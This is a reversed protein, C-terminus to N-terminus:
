LVRVRRGRRGVPSSALTAAYDRCYCKLASSTRTTSLPRPISDINTNPPFNPVYNHYNFRHTHTPTHTHVAFRLPHSSQRFTCVCDFNFPKRTRTKASGNRTATDTCVCVCAYVDINSTCARTHVDYLEDDHQRCALCVCGLMYLRVIKFHASLKSPM